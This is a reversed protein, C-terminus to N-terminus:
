KAPPEAVYASPVLLAMHFARHLHNPSFREAVPIGKISKLVGTLMQCGGKLSEIVYGAWLSSFIGFLHLLFFAGHKPFIGPRHFAVQYLAQLYVFIGRERVTCVAVRNRIIKYAAHNLDFYIGVLQLSIVIIKRYATLLALVSHKLPLDIKFMIEPRKRVLGSSQM